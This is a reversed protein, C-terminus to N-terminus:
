SGKENKKVKSEKTSLVKQFQKRVERNCFLKYKLVAEKEKFHNKFITRLNGSFHLTDFLTQSLKKYSTIGDQKDKAKYKNRKKASRFRWVKNSCM